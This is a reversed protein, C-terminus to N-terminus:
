MNWGQRRGVQELVAKKRNRSLYTGRVDIVPPVPRRLEGRPEDWVHPRCAASVRADSVSWPHVHGPQNEAPCPVESFKKTGLNTTFFLVEAVTPLSSCIYPLLM